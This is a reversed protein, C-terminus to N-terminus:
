LRIRLRSLTIGKWYTISSLCLTSNVTFLILVIIFIWPQFIHTYITVVKRRCNLIQVDQSTFFQNWCCDITLICIWEMTGKASAQNVGYICLMPSSCPQNAITCVTPNESTRSTETNVAFTSNSWHMIEQQKEIRVQTSLIHKWKAHSIWSVM